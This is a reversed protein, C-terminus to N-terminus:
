IISDLLRHTKIGCNFIKLEENSKNDNSFDVLLKDLPSQNKFNNVAEIDNIFNDSSLVKKKDFDYIIYDEASYHVKLKRVRKKLFNGTLIKIKINKSKFILKCIKKQSNNRSLIITKKEFEVNELYFLYFITSVPHTGWDLIPDITKRIPGNDGEIINIKQIRKKFIIDKLKKFKLDYLNPLNLYIQIKNINKLNNLKNCDNLNISLPKEIICNINYKFAIKVINYYTNPDGALYLANPVENDLAEEISNYTPLDNSNIKKNKRNRCVIFSLSYNSNKKINDIVTRAWNGCGIIGINIM